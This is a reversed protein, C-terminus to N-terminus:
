LTEQLIKIQSNIYELESELKKLENQKKAIELKVQAANMKLKKIEDTTNNPSDEVSDETKKYSNLIKSSLFAAAGLPASTIPSIGLGLLAGTVAATKSDFSLSNKQTVSANNAVFTHLQEESIKNGQKGIGRSAELKGDRIWRRVTEESVKLMSSIDKVTYFM